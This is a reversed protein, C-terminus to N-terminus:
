PAYALESLNEPHCVTPINESYPRNPSYALVVDMRSKQDRTFINMCIGESYDMYNEIMRTSGCQSPHLCTPYTSFYPDSCRPTDSCYDDKTCTGDGWIHRLGLWHGIEHTATRGMNMTTAGLEITGIATPIVVVGDRDALGGDVDLGQLGSSDPFQAYGALGPTMQAVWINLFRSPDQSTAPKIIGEMYTKSFYGPGWNSWRMIGPEPLVQNYENILSLCFEVEIDAGRPDENYGNGLRRFDENLVDIQSQVQEASINVGHGVGSNASHIIHFIVPITRIAPLDANRQHSSKHEEIKRAIWNEFAQESTKQGPFQDYLVANYEVTGCLARKQAFLQSQSLILLALPLFLRIYRNGMSDM